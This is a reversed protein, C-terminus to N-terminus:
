AMLIRPFRTAPQSCYTCLGQPPALSCSHPAAFSLHPPWITRPKRPLQFSKAEVQLSVSGLSLKLCCLPTSDLDHSPQTWAQPFTSGRNHSAPDSHHQPPFQTQFPYIGPAGGPSVGHPVHGGSSAAQAVAQLDEPLVPTMLAKKTSGARGGHYWERHLSHSWRGAELPTDMLGSARGWPLNRRSLFPESGAEGNGLPQPAPWPGPGM